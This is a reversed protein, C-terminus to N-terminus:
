QTIFRRLNRLTLLPIQTECEWMYKKGCSFLSYELPWYQPAKYPIQRLERNRILSWSELPLVMALQEQPKAVPGSLDLAKEVANEFYKDIYLLLDSWLPPLFFPYYWDMAVPAGLYYARIWHLGEFYHRASARAMLAHAGGVHNEYYTKRWKPKLTSGKWKAGGEGNEFFDWEVSEAPYFEPGTDARIPVPRTLKKRINRLIDAEETLALKEFMYRVGELNWTTDPNIIMKGERLMNAVLELIIDHGEESMKQSLGHPLFDNGLFCMAMTYNYIAGAAFDSRVEGFRSIIYKELLNVDLYIYTQEGLADLIMKGFESNERFLSVTSLPKEQRLLLSLIILDADLGYIVINADEPVSSSRLAAMIKQEGEGPVSADQVTWRVNGHSEKALRHLHLGLLEM